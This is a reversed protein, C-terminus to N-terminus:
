AHKGERTSRTPRVRIHDTDLRAERGPNALAEGVFIGHADRPNRRERYLVHENVPEITIKQRNVSQSLLQPADIEFSGTIAPLQENHIQYYIIGKPQPDSIHPISLELAGLVYPIEPESPSPFVVLEIGSGTYPGMQLVTEGDEERSAFWSPLPAEAKMHKLRLILVVFRAETKGINILLPKASFRLIDKDLRVNSIELKLKLRPSRRGCIIDRIEYEEMPEEQFNRRKYYRHDSAMHPARESKPVEILFANKGEEVAIPIIILSDIKPYINSLLMNELTEKSHRNDSPVGDIELTSRKGDKNAKNEAVGIIFLGGDSNAFSSVAKTLEGIRDHEFIEGSKFELHLDEAPNQKIFNKLAELTVKDPPTKLFGEIYTMSSDVINGM